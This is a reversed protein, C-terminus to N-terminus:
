EIKKIYLIPDSFGKKALEVKWYIDHNTNKIKVSTHDVSHCLDNRDM